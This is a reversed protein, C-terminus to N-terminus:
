RWQPCRGFRGSDCVSWLGLFCFGPFKCDKSRCHLFSSGAFYLRIHALIIRVVAFKSACKKKQECEVFVAVEETVRQHWFRPNAPTNLSCFYLVHSCTFLSVATGRFIYAFVVRCLQCSFVGLGYPATIDEVGKRCLSALIFSCSYFFVACRGTCM